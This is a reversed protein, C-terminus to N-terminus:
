PLLWAEAFPASDDDDLPVFSSVVHSGALSVRESRRLILPDEFPRAAGICRDLRIETDQPGDIEIRYERPEDPLELRAFRAVRGRINVVDEAACTSAGSSLELPDGSWVLTPLGDMGCALPDFVLMPQGRVAEVAARLSLGFVERFVPEVDRAPSFRGLRGAFSAMTPGGHEAELWAWLQGANPYWEGELRRHDLLARIQEYDLDQIADAMGWDKRSPGPEWRVAVGEGFLAPMGHTAGTLRVAHTLEHPNTVDSVVMLNTGNPFPVDCGGAGFGAACLGRALLGEGDWVVEIAPRAPLQVAYTDAVVELTADVYELTGGCLSRQEPDWHIIAHRGVVTNMRAVSCSGVTAAALGAVLGGAILRSRRAV